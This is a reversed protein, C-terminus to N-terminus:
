PQATCFLHRKINQCTPLKKKRILSLLFIFVSTEKIVMDRHHAKLIEPSHGEVSSSCYLCHFSHEHGILAYGALQGTCLCVVQWHCVILQQGDTHWDQHLDVRCFTKLTAWFCTSQLYLQRILILVGLLILCFLSTKITQFSYLTSEWQM